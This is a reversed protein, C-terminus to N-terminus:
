LVIRGGVGHGSAKEQGDDRVLRLDLLPAFDQFAERVAAVTGDDRGLHQVLTDVYRVRVDRDDDAAGAGHALVHLPEPAHQPTAVTLLCYQVLEHRRARALGSRALPAPSVGSVLSMSLGSWTRTRRCPLSSLSRPRSRSSSARATAMARSSPSMARSYTPFVRSSTTRAQSAMSHEGRSRRMREPSMFSTSSSDSNSIGSPLSGASSRLSSNRSAARRRRESSGSANSLCARRASVASRRAM